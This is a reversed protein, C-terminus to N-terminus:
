VVRVDPRMLAAASVTDDSSRGDVVIVETVCDPLRWMAYPLNKAENLTPIVVTVTPFDPRLSRDLYEPAYRKPKPYQAQRTSRARTSWPADDPALAGTQPEFLATMTHEAMRTSAALATSAGALRPYFPDNPDDTVGHM